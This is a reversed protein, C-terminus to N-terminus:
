GNAAQASFSFGSPFLYALCHSPGGGPPFQLILACSSSKEQHFFFTRLRSYTYCTGRQANEWGYAKM